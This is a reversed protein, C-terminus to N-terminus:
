PFINRTGVKSPNTRLVVTSQMCQGGARLTVKVGTDAPTRLHMKGGAARFVIQGDKRIKLRARQLGAARTGTRDSFRFVGRKLGSKTTVLALDHCYLEGDLDSLQLTVGDHVPDLRATSTASPRIRLRLSDGSALPRTRMVMRGLSLPDTRECCDPDEYDVLGDGDNDQCDGCTESVGGPTQCNGAPCPNAGTGPQHAPCGDMAHSGCVGASCTDTTCANSDDCDAASACPRCGAITTLECSGSAGCVDVTCPNADNCGTATTCSSCTPAPQSGCVGGICTETTCPNGDNCEAATTCSVCGPDSGITASAQIELTNTARGSATNVFDVSKCSTYKANATIVVTLRRGAGLTPSNVLLPNTSVVTFAADPDDTTVQVAVNGLFAPFPVDEVVV